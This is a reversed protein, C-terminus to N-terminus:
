STHTSFHVTSPNVTILTYQKAELHSLQLEQLRAHRGDKIPQQSLNRKKTSTLIVHHEM